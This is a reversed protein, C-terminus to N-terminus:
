KLRRLNISRKTFPETGPVPEDSEVLERWPAAAVRRELLHLADNERVYDYFADWDSVSPVTTESITATANASRTQQLDDKDLSDILQQELGKYQEDIDKLDANIARKQERLQFMLDITAGISNPSNELVDEVM